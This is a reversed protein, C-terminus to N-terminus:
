SKSAIARGYGDLGRLDSFGLHQALGPHDFGVKGRTLGLDRLANRLAEILNVSCTERAHQVWSMDKASEPIFQDLGSAALPRDLPTMGNRLARIDKVWTPQYLFFMLLEEAVLLVPRDPAHRSIVVAAHPPEDQHYANPHFSTLYFLNYRSTCV